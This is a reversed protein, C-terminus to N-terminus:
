REWPVIEVNWGREQPETTDFVQEDVKENVVANSVLIVSENESDDLTRAQVPLLTEQDYWLDIRTLDSKVGARPTLKLHVTNKPDLEKDAPVLVANYKRNIREKKATVPLAFPGEGLNLPDAQDKPADPAVVQRKTFQKEADKREVLWRGDFIFRQDQKEVRGDVLLRDFHVAFKAPPGVVYVISGFRRQKDGVLVQNRDYRVNARFTRLDKSRAEIRTLLEDAAPDVAADEAPRTAPPAAPAAAPASAALARLLAAAAAL